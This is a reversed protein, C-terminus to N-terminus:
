STLNQLSQTSEKWATKHSITTYFKTYSCYFPLTQIRKGVWTPSPPWMGRGLFFAAEQNSGRLSAHWQFRSLCAGWGWGGLLEYHHVFHFKTGPIETNSFTSLPDELQERNGAPWSHAKCELLMAWTAAQEYSSSSHRFELWKNRCMLTPPSVTKIEIIHQAKPLNDWIETAKQNPHQTVLM